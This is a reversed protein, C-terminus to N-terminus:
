GRRVVRHPYEVERVEVSGVVVEHSEDELMRDGHNTVGLVGQVPYMRRVVRVRM